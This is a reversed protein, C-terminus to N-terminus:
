PKFAFVNTIQVLSQAHLKEILPFYELFNHCNLSNHNKQSIKFICFHMKLSHGSVQTTGKFTIKGV